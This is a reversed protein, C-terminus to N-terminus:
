EGNLEAPAMAARAFRDTLTDRAVATAARATGLAAALLQVAQFWQARGQQGVQVPQGVQQEDGGPQDTTPDAAQVGLAQSGDREVQGMPVRLLAAQKFNVAM